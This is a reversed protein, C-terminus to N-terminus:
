IAQENRKRWMIQSSTWASKGHEDIYFSHNIVVYNENFTDPFMEGQRFKVFKMKEKKKAEGIM